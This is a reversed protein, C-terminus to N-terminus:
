GYPGVGPKPQPRKESSDCESTEPNIIMGRPSKQSPTRRFNWGLILLGTGGVLIDRARIYLSLGLGAAPSFGLATVALILGAELAGLGAPTPALFALRSTALVIIAFLLSVHMGLFAMSLWFELIILLWAITTIVSAGLFVLPRQQLISTMRKESAYVFLQAKQIAPHSARHRFAHQTLRTLPRRGRWLLGFYMLPLLFLVSIVGILEPHSLDALSGVTLMLFLGCIIFGLSFTVELLKDLTVSATAASGSVGARKNLLAVQVPEGGFQPGPTFYNVGFAVLRYGFLRPLAVKGGAGHLLLWWRLSFLFLIAANVLLLVGLQWGHLGRMTKWIDALPVTRFSIVLISLGVLWTIWTLGRWLWRRKKKPAMKNRKGPEGCSCSM